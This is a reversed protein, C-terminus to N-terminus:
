EFYFTTGLGVILPNISYDTEGTVGNKTLKIMPRWTGSNFAVKKVDFDVSWRQVPYFKLGGQVLGGLKSTYKLQDASGIGMSQIYVYSAGLGLYPTFNWDPTMMWLISWSTTLFSVRGINLDGFTSGNVSVNHLSFDVSLETAFYRWIDKDGLDLHGVLNGGLTGKTEVSGGIKPLTKSDDTTVYTLKGGLGFTTKAQAPASLSIALLISFLLAALKEM